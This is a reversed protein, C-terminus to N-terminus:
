AGEEDGENGDDTVHTLVSGGGDGRSRSEARLFYFFSFLAKHKTQVLAGEEDGENGDDTM